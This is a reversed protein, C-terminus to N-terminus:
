QTRVLQGSLNSLATKYEKSAGLNLKPIGSDAYGTGIHDHTKRHIRHIVSALLNEARHWVPESETCPIVTYLKYFM